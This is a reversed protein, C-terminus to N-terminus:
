MCFRLFFGPVPEIKQVVLHISTVHQFKGIAAALGVLPRRPHVALFEVVDLRVPLPAPEPFQRLPELALVVPRFRHPPDPDGLRAAALHARETYRPDRIPHDLRCRHQHEIGDKFGIQLRLLIRIPPLPPRMICNSRDMAQQVRPVGFDHIRIQGPVVVTNRMGFQHLANCPPNHVQVNQVEDLHPQLGRDLFLVALTIPFARGRVPVALAAGRLTRGDSWTCL